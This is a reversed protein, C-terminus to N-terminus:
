TTRHMPLFDVMTGATASFVNRQTAQDVMQLALAAAGKTKTPIRIAQTEDILQSDCPTSWM